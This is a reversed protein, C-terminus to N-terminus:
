RSGNRAPKRTGSGRQADKNLLLDSGTAQEVWALADVYSLFHHLYEPSVEGMLSLTRHVLLSSNLPGANEPVQALSQKLQRKAGLRSWVDRFYDLLPLEPYSSSAPAVRGTLSADARAGSADAEAGVGKDLRSDLRESLGALAGCDPVSQERSQERTELAGAERAAAAKVEDGYSAILEALRVDLFRRADGRKGAARRALAQIFHFRVPNLRDAGQERWADLKGQIDPPEGGDFREAGSV